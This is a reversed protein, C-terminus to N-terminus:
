ISSHTILYFLIGGCLSFAGLGVGGMLLLGRRMGRIIEECRSVSLEFLEWELPSIDEVGREEVSRLFEKMQSWYPEVLPQLWPKQRLLKRSSALSRTLSPQSKRDEIDMM